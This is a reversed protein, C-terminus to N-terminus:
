WTTKIVGNAEVVVSVPPEGRDSSVLGKTEDTFIPTAPLGTQLDILGTNSLDAPPEQQVVQRSVNDSPLPRTPMVVQAVIADAM